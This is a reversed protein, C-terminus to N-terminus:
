CLWRKFIYWLLILRTQIREISSYDSAEGTPSANKGHRVYKMLPKHVFGVCGNLEVLLGIWWDHMHVSTPFPLAYTLVERRFAMCCGIYSNKYLNRLLGPKSSRYDFFSPILTNLAEDVVECDSLVLDYKQLYETMLLIKDPAWIDDQDSLFVYHGNANKLANEFNALPGITKKNRIIKIRKDNFEDLLECTNDSSNDDSVIIEDNNKLQSLISNIQRTIYKSGNYSAICVSVM